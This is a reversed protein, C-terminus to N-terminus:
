EIVSLLTNFLEGLNIPKYLEGTIETVKPETM